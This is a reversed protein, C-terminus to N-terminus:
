VYKAARSHITNEWDELEDLFCADVRECMDLIDTYCLEAHFGTRGSSDKEALLARIDKEIATLEKDMRLSATYHSSYAGSNSLSSWFTAVNPLFLALASATVLASIYEPWLWPWAGQATSGVYARAVAALIGLVFCCIGWRSLKRYIIRSNQWRRRHYKLQPLIFDDHMWSLWNRLTEKGAELSPLGQERALMRYYWTLENRTEQELYSCHRYHVNCFGVSWLFMSKRCREAMIRYNYFLRHPSIARRVLFIGWFVLVINVLYFLYALGRNTGDAGEQGSFQPSNTALILFFLAIVPLFYRLFLEDRYIRSYKASLSSFLAKPAQWGKKGLSAVSHAHGTERLAAPFDEHRKTGLLCLGSILDNFSLKKQSEGWETPPFPAKAGKMPHDSPLLIQSLRKGIEAEWNRIESSDVVFRVPDLCATGDEQKRFPIILIPIHAKSAAIMTAYTGAIFKTQQCNWVALLFDSHYLMVRSADAYAQSSNQNCATLELVSAAQGLLEEFEACSAEGDGFTGKYKERHFPLPCHLEYGQKLAERAAIRDTGEALPSVLRLCVPTDGSARQFFDKEEAYVRDTERHILRLIDAIKGRVLEEAGQLDRHGTIGVQVVARTCLPSNLNNKKNM